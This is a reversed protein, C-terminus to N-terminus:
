SLLQGDLSLIALVKRVFPSPIVTLEGARSAAIVLAAVGSADIFAVDAMDVVIRRAQECALDLTARLTPATAIDIEGAVRVVRSDPGAADIEARFESLEPM